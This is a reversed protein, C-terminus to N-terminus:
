SLIHEGQLILSSVQQALQPDFLLKVFAHDKRRSAAEMQQLVQKAAQPSSTVVSSPVPEPSAAALAGNSSVTSEAASGTSASASSSSSDDPRSSSSSDDTPRSSSSSDDTPRSSIDDWGAHSEGVPSNQTTISSITGSFTGVCKAQFGVLTGIIGTLSQSVAAQQRNSELRHRSCPEPWRPTHQYNMIALMSAQDSKVPGLGHSRRRAGIFAYLALSRFMM